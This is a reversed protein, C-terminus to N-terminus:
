QLCIVFRQSLIIMRAAWFGIIDHGTEMLDLPPSSISKDPWGAIVLPVLASSFWTDLVDSDQELSSGNDAIREAEDRSRAVIWSSSFM